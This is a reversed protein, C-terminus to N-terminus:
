FKRTFLFLASSQINTIPYLATIPRAIVGYGNILNLVTEVVPPLSLSQLVSKNITAQSIKISYDSLVDPPISPIIGEYGTIVPQNNKDKIINGGTDKSYIPNKLLKEVNPSFYAIDFGIHKTYIDELLDNFENYKHKEIEVAEIKNMWYKEVKEVFCDVLHTKTHKEYYLLVSLTLNELNSSSKHKITNLLTKFWKKNYTSSVFAKDLIVILTFKLSM